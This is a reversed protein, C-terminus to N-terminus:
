EREVVGDVVQAGADGAVQLDGRDSSSKTLERRSRAAALAVGRARPSAM